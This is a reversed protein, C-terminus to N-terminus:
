KTVAPRRKVTSRLVFGIKGAQNTTARGLLYIKKTEGPERDPGTGAL